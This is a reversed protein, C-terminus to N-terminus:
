VKTQYRWCLFKNLTKAAYERNKGDVKSWIVIQKVPATKPYAGKHMSADGLEVSFSFCLLCQDISNFTFSAERKNEWTYVGSAVLHSTPVFCWHRTSKSTTVELYVKLDRLFESGFSVTSKWMLNDWMVTNLSQALYVVNAKLYYV